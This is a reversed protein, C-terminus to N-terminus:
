CGATASAYRAILPELHPPRISAFHCVFDGPTWVNPRNVFALHSDLEPTFSNFLKAERELRLISRVEPHDEMLRILADQEWNQRHAAADYLWVMDLLRRTAPTNKLLIVGCNIQSQDVAILVSSTENARDLRSTLQKLRFASNTVLCDADMWLVHQYGADLLRLALPIKYWSAPRSQGNPPVDLFARSYGHRECYREQSDLCLRVAHRYETGLAMSCVVIKDSRPLVHPRVREAANELSQSLVTPPDSSLLRDVHRLVSKNTRNRRRQLETVAAEMTQNLLALAATQRANAARTEAILNELRDRVSPPAYKSNGCLSLLGRWLHTHWPKADAVFPARAARNWHTHWPVRPDTSHQM